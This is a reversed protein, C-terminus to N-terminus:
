SEGDKRLRAIQLADRWQDNTMPTSKEGCWVCPAEGTSVALVAMAYQERLCHVCRTQMAIEATV